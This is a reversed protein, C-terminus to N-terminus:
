RQVEVTQTNPMTFYRSLHPNVALRSITEAPSQRNNKMADTESKVERHMLEWHATVPQMRAYGLAEIWRRAQVGQNAKIFTESAAKVAPMACKSSAIFNQVPLSTAFHIFKWAQDKKDSDASM